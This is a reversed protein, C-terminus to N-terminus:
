SFKSCLNKLLFDRGLKNIPKMAEVTEFRSRSNKINLCRYTKLGRIIKSFWYWSVFDPLSSCLKSIKLQKIHTSILARYYLVEVYRDTTSQLRLKFFSHEKSTRSPNVLRGESFVSKAYTTNPTHQTPINDHQRGAWGSPRVETVGIFAM